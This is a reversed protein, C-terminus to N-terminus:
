RKMLHGQVAAYWKARTRVRIPVDVGNLSKLYSRVEELSVEMNYEEGNEEDILLLQESRTVRDM